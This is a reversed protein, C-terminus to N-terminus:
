RQCRDCFFSSRQALRQQRIPQGCHPCPQGTRGYVQLAVQFYGPRGQADQFDRLTTGGQAIAEQLVQQIATALQRYHALSITGAPRTPHLASRFLAENAYINGVGVVVHGDMIFSKVPTTRQRAQQYLYDGDFDTGLPEPGLDRLWPHALPDTLWLALGFRRPDTFRLCAGNNLTVDLHDHRAPTPADDLIRLRGSMGLHLLLTARRTGILLYKARREVSVIAQGPLESALELPVPLRLRPQRVVVEKVTQGLLHPAIGARTTEVEPLEPM